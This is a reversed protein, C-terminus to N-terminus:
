VIPSVTERPSVTGGWGMQPGPIGPKYERQKKDSKRISAWGEEDLDKCQVCIQSISECPKWNAQEACRVCVDHPDGKPKRHRCFLTPQFGLAFILLVHNYM